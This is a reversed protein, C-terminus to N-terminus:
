STCNNKLWLETRSLTLRDHSSADASTRPVDRLVSARVPPTWAGKIGLLITSQERSFIVHDGLYNTLHEGCYVKQPNQDRSGLFNKM